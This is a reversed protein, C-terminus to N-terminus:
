KLLGMSRLDERPENFSCSGFSVVQQRALKIEPNDIRLDKWAFGAEDFIFSAPNEDELITEIQEVSLDNAVALVGAGFVNLFGHMKTQVGENFHRVPHHLGATCKM